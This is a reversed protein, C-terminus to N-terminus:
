VYQLYISLYISPIFLNLYTLILQSLNLYSSLIILYVFLFYICLSISLHVSLYVSPCLSLCISLYVSVFINVTSQIVMCTHSQAVSQAEADQKWAVQTHNVIAISRTHVHCVIRCACHGTTCLGIHPLQVVKWRAMSTRTRPENSKCCDAYPNTSNLSYNWYMEFDNRSHEVYNQFAKLECINVMVISPRQQHTGQALPLCFPRAPWPECEGVVIATFIDWCSNSNSRGWIACKTRM